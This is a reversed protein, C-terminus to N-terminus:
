PSAKLDKFINSAKINGELGHRVLVVWGIWWGDAGNDLGGYGGLGLM